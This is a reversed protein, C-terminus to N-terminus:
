NIQVFCKHKLQFSRPRSCRRARAAGRRWGARAPCRHLARQEGHKEKPKKGEEKQTFQLWSSLLFFFFLFVVLKHLATHEQYINKRREKLSNQELLGLEWVRCSGGGETSREGPYFCGAFIDTSPSCWFLESSSPLTM